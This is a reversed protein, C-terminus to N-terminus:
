NKTFLRRVITQLKPTLIIAVVIGAASTILSYQIKSAAVVASELVFWWALFYGLATWIAGIILAVLIGGFSATPKTISPPLYGATMGGVILGTQLDGLIAGIVAGTVIPQYLSELLDFQDIAVIFSWVAVLLIQIANFSM